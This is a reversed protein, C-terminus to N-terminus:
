AEKALNRIFPMGTIWLIFGTKGYNIFSIIDTDEYSRLIVIDNFLYPSRLKRCACLLTNLKGKLIELGHNLCFNSEGLGYNPVEEGFGFM